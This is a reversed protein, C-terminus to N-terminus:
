NSRNQKDRQENEHLMEQYIRDMVDNECCDDSFAHAHSYLRSRQDSQVKYEKWAPIDPAELKINTHSTPLIEVWANDAKWVIGIPEQNVTLTTDWASGDYTVFDGVQLDKAKAPDM